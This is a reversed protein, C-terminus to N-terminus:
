LGTTNLRARNPDASSGLQILDRVGSPLAALQVIVLLVESTTSIDAGVSGGFYGTTGPKVVYSSWGAIRQQYTSTGTATLNSSGIADVASGSVDQFRWCSPPAPWATGVLLATWDSASAPLRYGSLTDIACAPMHPM